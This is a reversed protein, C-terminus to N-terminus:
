SKQRSTPPNGPDTTGLCAHRPNAPNAPARGIKVRQAQRVLELADWLLTIGLIGLITSVL